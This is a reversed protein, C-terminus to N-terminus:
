QYRRILISAYVKSINKYPNLVSCVEASAMAVRMSHSNAICLLDLKCTLRTYIYYVSISVKVSRM